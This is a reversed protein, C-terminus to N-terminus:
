TWAPTFDSQFNLHRKAIQYAVALSPSGPPNLGGEVFMANFVPQWRQREPIGEVLAMNALVEASGLYCYAMEPTLLWSPPYRYEIHQEAIAAELNNPRVSGPRGYDRDHGVAYQHRIRLDEAPFMETTLQEHLANLGVIMRRLDTSTPRISDDWSVHVHGGLPEPEIWAGTRYQMGPPHYFDVALTILEHLRHVLIEASKQIGPRFELSATERQGDLGIALTKEPDQFIHTVPRWRITGNPRVVVTGAEPDTGFRLGSM